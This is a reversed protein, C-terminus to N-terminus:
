SNPNPSDQEVVQRLYQEVEDKIAFRDAFSAAQLPEAFDARVDIQAQSVICWVSQLLGVNAFSVMQSRQQNVYYRLAIAQVPANAMIAAQFLAAKLPLVSDGLSTKAEPFFCVNEGQQLATAIATNVPDIDKRNSRDIFVTGANKVLKGVVFWSEIEKMAIFSAPQLANIVLIDLWSVHNAVVLTGNWSAPQKEHQLRVNLIALCGASLQRIIQNRQAADHQSLRNIQRIAGFLWILLKFLRRFRGLFSITPNM